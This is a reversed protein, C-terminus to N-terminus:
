NNWERAMARARAWHEQLSVRDPLHKYSRYDTDYKIDSGVYEKYKDTYDYKRTCSAGLAITGDRRKIRYRGSCEYYYVYKSNYYLRYPRERTGVFYYEAEPVAVNIIPSHRIIQKVDTVRWLRKTWTGWEKHMWWGRKHVKEVLRYPTDCVCVGVECLPIFLGLADTRSPAFYALYLSMGDRYGIPDRSIFRGTAADYMRFRFYMLGTEDDMRRATYLYPNGVSSTSSTDDDSTFWNGDNGAGALITPQGYATYKYGEQIAGNSDVLAAVSGNLPTQM